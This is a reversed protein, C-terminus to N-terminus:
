KKREGFIKQEEELTLRHAEDESYGQDRLNCELIEHFLKVRRDEGSLTEFMYIDYDVINSKFYEADQGANGSAIEDKDCLFLLFNTGNFTFEEGQEFKIIDILHLLENSKIEPHRMKEPNEM